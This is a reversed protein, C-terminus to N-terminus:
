SSYPLIVSFLRKIANTELSKVGHWGKLSPLTAMAGQAVWGRIIHNYSCLHKDTKVMKSKMNYQIRNDQGM